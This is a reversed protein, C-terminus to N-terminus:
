ESGEAAALSKGHWEGPVVGVIKQGSRKKEYSALKGSDTYENLIKFVTARVRRVKCKYANDSMEDAYIGLEQYLTEFYITRAYENGTIALRQLIFDRVAINQPTMQVASVDITDRGFRMIQNKANAYRYLPPDRYLEVATTSHEGVRLYIFRCPILAENFIGTINTDKPFFDKAIDVNAWINAMKFISEEIEQLFTEDTTKHERRETNKLLRAIAQLSILKGGEPTLQWEEDVLVSTIANHVSRDFRTLLREIKTAPHEKEMQILNLGVKIEHGKKSTKYCGKAIAATGKITPRDTGFIANSARDNTMIYEEPLKHYNGDRTEANDFRKSM